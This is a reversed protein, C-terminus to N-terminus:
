SSLTFSNLALSPETLGTKSRIDLELLKCYIKKLDEETFKQACNYTKRAVYPHLGAKKAITNINMNRLSLDKVSLLNRFQYIIMTLIYNTDRGSKLEKYLLEFSREKNKQALADIFEFINSSIKPSILLNIDKENIAEHKTSRAEHKYNALKSIENALAWSDNSTYDILKRIVSTEISCDRLEFEKKIWNQLRTGLLPEFNVVLSKSTSFLNFADKNKLALDKESINETLLLTTDSSKLIGFEKILNMLKDLYIKNQFINKIVVLKKEDFFSYSKIASEIISFNSTTLGTSGSADVNFFILNVGSQHKKRYREIVKDTNQKLRYGDSGYLFIIM